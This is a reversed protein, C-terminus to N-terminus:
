LTRRNGRPLAQCQECVKFSAEAEDLVTGGSSARTRIRYVGECFPAPFTKSSSEMQGPQLDFDASQKIALHCPGTVKVTLTVTEQEQSCNTISGAVTELEGPAVIGPSATLTLDACPATAHAGAASTLLSSAALASIVLLRPIARM